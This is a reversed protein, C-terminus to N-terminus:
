IGTLVENGVLEVIQVPSNIVDFIVLLCQANFEAGAVGCFRTRLNRPRKSRVLLTERCLQKISFNRSFGRRTLSDHGVGTACVSSDALRMLGLEKLMLEGLPNIDNTPTVPKVAYMGGRPVAM